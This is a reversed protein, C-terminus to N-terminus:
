TGVDSSMLNVVKGTDANSKKEKKDKKDDKKDGKKDDKKSEDEAKEGIVGSIDKRRLAKDYIAATLESNIRVNGRRSHWLHILDCLAKLISCGLALLAYLYAQALASKREVESKSKDM